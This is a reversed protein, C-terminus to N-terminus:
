RFTMQYFVRPNETWDPDTRVEAKHQYGLPALLATTSVRFSTAISAASTTPYLLSAPESSSRVKARSRASRLSRIRRCGIVVAVFFRAITRFMRRGISPRDSALQDNMFGFPRPSAHITPWEGACPRRGRESRESAPKAYAGQEFRLRLNKGGCSAIVAHCFSPPLVALIPCSFGRPRM